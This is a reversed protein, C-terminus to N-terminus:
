KKWQEEVWRAAKELSKTFGPVQYHTVGRLTILEVPAGRAELTEVANRTPEMEVVEDDESHIICLPMNGLKEVMEDSPWGAMPIAATFFDAHRSAMYWTGRGGLSYGTVLIRDRDIAYNELVHQILAMVKGESTPNDWGRSPCDPAVLIAGLRRLGPEVLQQLLGKGYYPTVDGGYHLALTLPRPRKPDYGKPISIAYRLVSGDAHRFVEEYMGPGQPLETGAFVATLLFLSM